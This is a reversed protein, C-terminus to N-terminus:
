CFGHQQFIVTFDHGVMVLLAKKRSNKDLSPNLRDLLFPEDAQYIIVTSFGGKDSLNFYGSCLLQAM